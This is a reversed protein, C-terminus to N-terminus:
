KSSGVEARPATVEAIAKVSSVAAGGSVPGGVRARLLVHTPKAGGLRPLNLSVANELLSRSSDLTPPNTPAGGIGIGGGFTIVSGAQRSAASNSVVPSAANQFSSVNVTASSPRLELPELAVAQGLLKASLPAALAFCRLPLFPKMAFNM